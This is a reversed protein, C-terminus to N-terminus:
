KTWQSFRYAQLYRRDDNKMRCLVFLDIIQREECVESWCVADHKQREEKFTQESKM